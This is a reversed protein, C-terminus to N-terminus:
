LKYLHVFHLVSVTWIMMSALSSQSLSSSTPPLQEQIIMILGPIGSFFLCVCVCLCMCVVCVCVACLVFSVCIAFLCIYVCLVFTCFVCVYVCLVFPVCVACVFVCLVFTCLSRACM